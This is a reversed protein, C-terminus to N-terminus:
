IILSIRFLLLFFWIRRGDFYFRLICLLLPESFHPKRPRWFLTRRGPISGPGGAHCALITGSLWRRQQVVQLGRPYIWSYGQKCVQGVYVAYRPLCCLYGTKAPYPAWFHGDGLLTPPQTTCNEGAVRSARTRNGASASRKEKFLCKKKPHYFLQLSPSLM